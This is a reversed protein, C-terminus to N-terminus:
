CLNPIFPTPLPTATATSASWSSKSTMSTKQHAVM